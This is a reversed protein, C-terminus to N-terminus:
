SGGEGGDCWECGEETGTAPCPMTGLDMRAVADAIAERKAEADPKYGNVVLEHVEACQWVTGPPAEIGYDYQEPTSNDHVTACHRKAEKRLDAV